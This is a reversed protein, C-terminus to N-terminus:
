SAPNILPRVAFVAYDPLTAPSQTTADPASGLSQPHKEVCLASPPVTSAAPVLPSDTGIGALAPTAPRPLGFNNKPVVSPRSCNFFNTQRDILNFPNKKPVGPM